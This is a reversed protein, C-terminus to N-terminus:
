FEVDKPNGGKKQEWRRNTIKVKVTLAEKPKVIEGKKPDIGKIFIRAVKDSEDRQAMNRTHAQAIMNTTIQDIEERSPKRLTVEEKVNVMKCVNDEVDSEYFFVQWHIVNQFQRQDYVDRDYDKYDSYHSEFM